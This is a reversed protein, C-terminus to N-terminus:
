RALVAIFDGRTGFRSPLDRLIIQVDQFIAVIVERGIEAVSRFVKGRHEGRDVHESTAPQTLLKGFL